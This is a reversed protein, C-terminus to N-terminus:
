QHNRRRSYGWLRGKAVPLICSIERSVASSQDMLFFFFFSIFYTLKKTTGILLIAIQFLLGTSEMMM